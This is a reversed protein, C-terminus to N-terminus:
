IHNIIENMKDIFRKMEEASLTRGGYIVPRIERIFKGIVEVDMGTKQAIKLFSYEDDTVEEIDVQVERRLEEAFYTFKKHVLNAHDNKQYYLTGILKTFELSRNEPEPIVPIARQRRKATFIMFLLIAIMTLYIAWRLPRQSLFYSLPSKQLQEIGQQYAETRVIPLDKMRSLLRFLYTANDGDLVGYNTFLLPTSVLIIEGKGWPRVFAMSPHYNGYVKATDEDVVVDDMGGALDKEALRQFPLSNYNRFYSSCLIPYFRYLQRSYVATDGVWYVSDKGVLSSAYKKMMMPSFYSYSCSFKLTDELEEGFLTSVLMIKNGREAMKLLSEVDLERFKLHKDIILIARNHLTDEQELQYFTKSSLSYGLPLSSSLISDFLACGFPQKDYHSFTPTWVFKKPMHYEVAFMVLLFAMIGMIFWRSGKM